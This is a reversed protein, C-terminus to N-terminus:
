AAWLVLGAVRGEGGEGWLLDDQLLFFRKLGGKPKPYLLHATCRLSRQAHRVVGEVASMWQSREVESGAGLVLTEVAGAGAGAGSGTGTGTEAGTGQTTIKFLHGYKKDTGTATVCSSADIRLHGKPPAGPKEYYAIHFLSLVFHRNKWNIQTKMALKNLNGTKIASKRVSDLTKLIHPALSQELEEPTVYPTPLPMPTPTPLSTLRPALAPVTPTPAGRGRSARARSSRSHRSSRSRYNISALAQEADGSGSSGSGSGSDDSDGSDEEFSEGVRLERGMANITNQATLAGAEAGAGGAAATDGGARVEQSQTAQEEQEEGLGEMGTEQTVYADEGEEEEEEAFCEDLRDMLELVEEEPFEGMAGESAERSMLQMEMARKRSFDSMIPPAPLAWSTESTDLKEFYCSGEEGIHSLYKVRLLIGEEEPLLWSAQGSQLDIYLPDQAANYLQMFSRDAM